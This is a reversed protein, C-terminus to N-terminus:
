SSMIQKEKEERAKEIEDNVRDVEKQVEDFARFKADEGTEGKSFIKEIVKRSDNRVDRVLQRSEEARSALMRVYQERREKTLSPFPVRVRKGDIVPSLGLGSEQIAKEVASLYSDDWPQIVIEMEKTLNIMGLSKLPMKKGYMEVELDEILNTSPRGTRLKVLDQQFESLIEGLKKKSEDVISQYEM